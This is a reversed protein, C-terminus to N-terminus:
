FRWTTVVVEGFSDCGISAWIIIMQFLKGMKNYQKESFLLLGISEQYCYVGSPREDYWIELCLIIRLGRIVHMEFILMMEGFSDCEISKWAVNM